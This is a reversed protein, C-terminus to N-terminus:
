CLRLVMYCFNYNYNLLYKTEFTKFFFSLGEGIEFGM